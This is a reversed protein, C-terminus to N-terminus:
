RYFFGPLKYELAGHIEAINDVLKNVDIYLETSVVVVGDKGIPFVIRNIKGDQVMTFRPEGAKLEMQKRTTWKKKAESLSLRIEAEKFFGLLEDKFKAHYKGDYIAVYRVKQDLGLVEDLFKGYDNSNVLESVRGGLKTVNFVNSLSSRM